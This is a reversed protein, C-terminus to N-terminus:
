LICNGTDNFTFYEDHFHLLIFDKKSTFICCSQKIKIAINDSYFLVSFYRCIESSNKGLRVYM